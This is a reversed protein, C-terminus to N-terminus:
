QTLKSRQEMLLYGLHNDGVGNCTGWFTDNWFNVEELHEDGTEILKEILWPEKFKISLAFKMANIKVTSWDSRISESNQLTFKKAKSGRMTKIQRQIAVNEFKLAMYIAESSLWTGPLILLKENEELERAEEETITLDVSLMNSLWSREGRFAADRSMVKVLFIKLKLELSNM